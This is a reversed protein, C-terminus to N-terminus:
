VFLYVFFLYVFLLVFVCACVFLCVVFMRDSLCEFQFVFLCVLLPVSSCVSKLVSSCVSLLVSSCVTLLVSSCVSLLVSSRVSSCLTSRVSSCVSSCVFLVSVLYGVKFGYTLLKNSKYRIKCGDRKTLGLCRAAFHNQSSGEVMVVLLWLLLHILLFLHM